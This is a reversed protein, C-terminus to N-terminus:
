GRLSVHEFRLPAYDHPGMLRVVRVSPLITM